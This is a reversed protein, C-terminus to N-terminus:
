AAMHKLELFFTKHRNPLFYLERHDSARLLHFRDSDRDKFLVEVLEQGPGAFLGVATADATALIALYGRAWRAVCPLIIVQDKGFGVSSRCHDIGGITTSRM